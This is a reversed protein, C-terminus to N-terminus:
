SVHVPALPCLDSCTLIFCGDFAGRWAFRLVRVYYHLSHDYAWLEHGRSITFLRDVIVPVLSFLVSCFLSLLSLAGHGRSGPVLLDVLEPFFPVLVYWFLAFSLPGEGTSKVNSWEASLHGGIGFLACLGSKSIISGSFVAELRSLPFITSILREILGLFSVYWM